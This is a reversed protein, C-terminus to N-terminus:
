AIGASVDRCYQPLHRSSTIIPEPLMASIPSWIARLEKQRRFSPDKILGPHLGHAPNFDQFRTLTQEQTRGTYQVEHIGDFRVPAVANLARTLEYLFGSIDNIEVCADTAEFEAQVRSSLETSACFIFHDTSTQKHVFRVGRPVTIKGHVRAGMMGFFADKEAQDETIIERDPLALITRTGESSDAVGRAHETKRFDFLTGVRITGMVLLADAYQRPLYKYLPM